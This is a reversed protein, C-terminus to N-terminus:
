RNPNERPAKVTRERAPISCLTPSNFGPKSFMIPYALSIYLLPFLLTIALSNLSVKERFQGTCKMPTHSM